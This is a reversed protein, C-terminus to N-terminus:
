SEKFDNSGTGHKGRRMFSLSDWQVAVATRGKVILQLMTMHKRHSARKDKPKTM